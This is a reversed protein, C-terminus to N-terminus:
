INKSFDRKFTMHEEDSISLDSFFKGYKFFPNNNIKKLQKITLPKSIIDLEFMEKQLKLVDVNHIKHIETLLEIKNMYLDSKKSITDEENDLELLKGTSENKSKYKRFAFPDNINMFFGDYTFDYYNNGEFISNPNSIYDSKSLLSNLKQLEYKKKKKKLKEKKPKRLKEQTREIRYEERKISFLSIKKQFLLSKVQDIIEQEISNLAIDLIEDFDLDYNSKWIKKLYYIFENKFKSNIMDNEYSLDIM